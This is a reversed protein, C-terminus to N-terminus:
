LWEGLETVSTTVYTPLQNTSNKQQKINDLEELSGRGTLVMLSDMGCNNAFLMDNRPTDGIMLTHQATVGRHHLKICDLALASPKGLVTPQCQVTCQIAGSVHIM